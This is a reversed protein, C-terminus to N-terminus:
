LSAYKVTFNALNSLASRLSSEDSHRTAQDPAPRVRDVSLTRLAGLRHLHVLQEHAIECSAFDLERLETALHAVRSVFGLPLGILQCIRLFQLKPTARLLNELEADTAAAPPRLTLETLGAWCLANGPPVLLSLNVSGRCCLVLSELRGLGFLFSLDPLDFHRPRLRTLTTVRAVFPANAATIAGTYLGLDRLNPWPMGGMETPETLLGLEVDSLCGHTLDLYTLATLRRFLRLHAPLWVAIDNDNDGLGPLVEAVRCDIRLSTLTPSLRALPEFLDHPMDGAGAHLTHNTGARWWDMSLHLDTLQELRGIGGVLRRIGDWLDPDAAGPRMRTQTWLTLSTLSAPFMPIWAWAPSVGAAEAFLPLSLSRLGSFMRMGRPPLLLHESREVSLAVLLRMPPDQRRAKQAWKMYGQLLPLQGSSIELREHLEVPFSEADLLVRQRDARSLCDVTTLVDRLTLFQLVVSFTDDVQKAWKTPNILAHPQPADPAAM